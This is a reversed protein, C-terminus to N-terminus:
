NTKTVMAITMGERTQRFGVLRYGNVGRTAEFEVKWETMKELSPRIGVEVEEVSTNSGPDALDTTTQLLAASVTSRSVPSLFECGYSNDDQRVVRAESAGIFPLDVMIIEDTALDASSEFMLGTESIDHILVKSWDDSASVVATLRLTRREARRSERLIEAQLPQVLKGM